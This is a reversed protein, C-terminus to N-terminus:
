GLSPYGVGPRKGRLCLLSEGAASGPAAVRQRRRQWASVRGQASEVVRQRWRQRQGASGPAGLRGADAARRRRRSASAGTLVWALTRSRAGKHSPSAVPKPSRLTFGQPNHQHNVYHDYVSRHVFRQQSAGHTVETRSYSCGRTPFFWTM